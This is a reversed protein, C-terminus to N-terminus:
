NKIEKIHVRLGGKKSKSIRFAARPDQITSEVRVLEPSILQPLLVAPTESEELTEATEQKPEHYVERQHMDNKNYTFFRPRLYYTTLVALWQAIIKGKIRIALVGCISLLLLSLLVKFASFTFFPPLLTFILGSVFVPTTLLILQTFSINGAVRDEVTTVQAPVITTRM